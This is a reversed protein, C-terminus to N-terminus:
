YVKGHSGAGSVLSAISHAFKEDSNSLNQFATSLKKAVEIWEWDTMDGFHSTMLPPCALNPIQEVKQRVLDAIKEITEDTIIAEQPVFSLGEVLVPDPTCQLSKLFNM